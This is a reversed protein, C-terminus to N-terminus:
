QVSDQKRWLNPDITAKGFLKDAKQVKMLVRKVGYLYSIAKLEGCAYSLEIVPKAVLKVM